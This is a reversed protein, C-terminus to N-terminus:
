WETRRRLPCTPSMTPARGAGGTRRSVSRQAASRSLPVSLRAHESRFYPAREGLSSLRYTLAASLTPNISM